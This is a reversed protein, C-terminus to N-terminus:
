TSNRLGREWGKLRMLMSQRPGLSFPLCVCCVCVHVVNAFVQIWRMFCVSATHRLVVGGLGAARQAEALCVASSHLTVCECGTVPDKARAPMARTVVCLPKGMASYRLAM